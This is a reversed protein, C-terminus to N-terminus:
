PLNNTGKKTDLSDSAHKVNLEYKALIQPVSNILRSLLCTGYFIEMEALEKRTYETEVM